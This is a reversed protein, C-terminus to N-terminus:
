GMKVIKRKNKKICAFPDGYLQSRCLAHQKLLSGYEEIPIPYAGKNAYIVVVITCNDLCRLKSNNNM